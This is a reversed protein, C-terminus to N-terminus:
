ATPGTVHRIWPFLYMKQACIGHRASEFNAAANFYAEASLVCKAYIYIYTLIYLLIVQYHQIGSFNIPQM